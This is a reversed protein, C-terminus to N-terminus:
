PVRFRDPHCCFDVSSAQRPSQRSFRWPYPSLSDSSFFSLICLTISSLLLVAHVCVSCAVYLALLSHSRACPSFSCSLSRLFSSTFRADPSPLLSLPLPLPPGSPVSPLSIPFLVATACVPLHPCSTPLVSVRGPVGLHCTFCFRRCPVTVSRLVLRLSPLCSFFFRISLLCSGFLFPLLLSSSFALFFLLFHPFACRSLSTEPLALCQHPPSPRLKIAWVRRPHHSALPVSLMGRPFIANRHSPVSKSFLFSRFQCFFLSGTPISYGTLLRFFSGPRRLYCTRSM